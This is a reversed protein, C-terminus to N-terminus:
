WHQDITAADPDPDLRETVPPNDLLVKDRLRHHELDLSDTSLASRALRKPHQDQQRRPHESPDIRLFSRRASEDDITTRPDLHRLDIAAPSSASISGPITPHPSWGFVSGTAVPLEIEAVGGIPM